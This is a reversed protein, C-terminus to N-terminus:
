CGVWVEAFFEGGLDAATNGGFVGALVALYVDGELEVWAPLKGDVGGVVGAPTIQISTDSANDLRCVVEGPFGVLYIDTWSLNLFIRSVSIGPLM